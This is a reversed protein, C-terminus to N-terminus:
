LLSINLEMFSLMIRIVLGIPSPTSHSEHCASSIVVEEQVTSHEELEELTSVHQGQPAQVPAAGGDPTSWVGVAPDQQDLHAGFGGRGRLGRSEQQDLQAQHDQQVLHAQLGREGQPGQEGVQTVPGPPGTLGDRGDRGPPGRPGRPGKRGDRGDAGRLQSYPCPASEEQKSTIDVPTTNNM